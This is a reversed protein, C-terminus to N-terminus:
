RMSLILEAILPPDVGTLACVGHAGRDHSSSADDDRIEDDAPRSWVSARDQDLHFLKGSLRARPTALTPERALILGTEDRAAALLDGHRDLRQRPVGASGTARAEGGGGTAPVGGAIVFGTRPPACSRLRAKANEGAAGQCVLLRSPGRVAGSRGRLQHLPRPRLARRARDGHDDRGPTSGSRSGWPPPSWSGRTAGEKFACM